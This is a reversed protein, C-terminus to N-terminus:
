DNFRKGQLKRGHYALITQAIRDATNGKGYPYEAPWRGAKTVQELGRAIATSTPRVNVMCQPIPSRGLQRDGINLVPTGFFPAEYFGSSSNGVLAICYRLANIYLEPSLNPVYHAEAMQAAASALEQNIQPSGAEANAGVFVTPRNAEVMAKVLQAVGGRDPHEAQWNVLFFSRTGKPLKLAKSVDTSSWVKAHALRDISPSGFCHIDERQEGMRQLRHAGEITTPFHVNAIKSIAHRWGEDLSGGSVDGGAIHAVPIHMMALVFTACLMEHRDGIVVGMDPKGKITLLRSLDNIQSADEQVLREEWTGYEKATATLEGYLWPAFGEATVAAQGVNGTPTAVWVVAGRKQLAKAVMGMANWDARSTSILLVKM